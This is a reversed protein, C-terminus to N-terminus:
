QRIIDGPAAIRVVKRDGFSRRIADEVSEIQYGGEPRITIKRRFFAQSGDEFQATYDEM